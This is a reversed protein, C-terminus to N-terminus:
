PPEDATIRLRGFLVPESRIDAREGAEELERLQRAFEAEARALEAERMIRIRQDTAQRIQELLLRSRGRHSVTLSQVRQAVVERNAEIHDGRENTWKGHHRADLTSQEANSVPDAPSTIEAQTILGLLRPELQPCTSVAVLKDEPRVGLLHWRYLAFLHQGTPLDGSKTTLTVTAPDNRAHYRAAQRVLPHHVTIHTADPHARATEQDFTILLHPSAGKLWREWEVVALERSLGLARLDALLVERIDAALRLTKLPKQGLAPEHGSPMRGRLYAAVCGELMAPGLWCSTAERLSEEWSGSPVELGFLKGQEAEPREEEQIRRIGNDAIQQLRKQREARSLTFSGEVDHIAQTVEGLIEECGGVAHHFVGIRWLCRTYIDADVTDPTILNAIVVAESGQGYRDLRGIRQEIRMPNWPLDYNVLHDCFQFDLGECGVESSLLIDIAEGNDKALAFRRRLESRGEESVGGHITGFRLGAAALHSELYALTHRFSTFVLTRGKPMRAKDAVLKVFAEVKPDTPDLRRVQELIDEIRDRVEDLFSLDVDGEEDTALMAELADVKRQLIGELLPALGYLCSAAQRRVTTMMFRVNPRGHCFTLIDRVVSLVSDHLRRQTDTFEISITEPKRTTFEGIDRRRTRNLFSSFTCLEELQRIMSVREADSVGGEGLRDYIGQFSSSERIFLRGWETAAAEDLRGRADEEWGSIHARCAHIAQNIPRNPAAMESFSAEDVVLEPRLAHLLTFLDGSGLQVPTATLFVVAESRDTFYRVAAHTCTEPNRIHHAEDVIVLDFRPPPDLALLGGDAQRDSGAKGLLLDWDFLSFPIIAKSYRAPWGGDLRTERLCHRLMPGDLAIFREDFRRMELEWKREAVLPKPCLVLVTSIDFRAQLEKLILGAEITKGVGVEDAVLLRPRDSRVLRLVPRYQYPVFDIRGANLSFLTASCRLEVHVSTLFAKLGDRGLDDAISAPPTAAALQSEYYLNTRGGELVRYRTEPGGSLVEIVAMPTGPSARHVVLTGVPYFVPSDANQPLAPRHAAHAPPPAADRAIDQLVGSKAAEIRETM